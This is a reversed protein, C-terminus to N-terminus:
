EEEGESSNQNDLPLPQINLTEFVEEWLNGYFQKTGDRIDRDISDGWCGECGNEANRNSCEWCSHHTGFFCAESLMFDTKTMLLRIFTEQFKERMEEPVYRKWSEM